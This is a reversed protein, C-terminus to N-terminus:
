TERQLAAALPSHDTHTHSVFIHSVPRGDITKLITELHAPIEPGPDIVALTETGVIYTNTGHFTFASPNEATIRTVGHTVPMAEGYSPEFQTDFDLAMRCGHPPYPEFRTAAYCPLDYLSFLQRSKAR